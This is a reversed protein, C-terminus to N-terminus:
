YAREDDFWLKGTNVEMFVAYTWKEDDIITGIGKWIVKTDDPDNGCYDVTGDWDIQADVVTGSAGVRLIAGSLQLRHGADLYKRAMAIEVDLEANLGIVM